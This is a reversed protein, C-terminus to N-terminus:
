REMVTTYSIDDNIVAKRCRELGDLFVKTDPMICDTNILKDKTIGIQWLEWIFSGVLYRYQLPMHALMLYQQLQPEANGGHEGFTIYNVARIYRDSAVKEMFHVFAKRYEDTSSHSNIGEYVDPYIVDLCPRLLDKEMLAFFWVFDVASPCSEGSEYRAWTHQDIGLETAMKFKSYGKTERLDKLIKAFDKSIEDKTRM